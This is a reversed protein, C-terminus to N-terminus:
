PEKFSTRNIKYEVIKNTISRRSLGCLKACRGVNGHTKKLAKRLYQQEILAVAERVVDPLPRSVDVHFPGRPAPPASLKGFHARVEARLADSYAITLHPGFEVRGRADSRILAADVGDLSTGSMLGIATRLRAAAPTKPKPMSQALQTM